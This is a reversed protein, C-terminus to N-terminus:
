NLNPQEVCNPEIPGCCLVTIQEALDIRQAARYNEDTHRSLVPIVKLFTIDTLDMFGFEHSATTVLMEPDIKELFNILAKVNMKKVRNQTKEVVVVIGATGPFTKL